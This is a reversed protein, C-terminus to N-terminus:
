GLFSSRELQPLKDTLSKKTKVAFSATSNERVRYRRAALVSGSFIQQVSEVEGRQIHQPLLGM